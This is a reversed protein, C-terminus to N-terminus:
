DAQPAVFVQGPYILGPDRIQDQNAAYIATYRVGQGYVKRSIRWLSDGRAVTATRIQPVTVSAEPRGPAAAAVQPGAASAAPTPAASAAAAAPAQAASTAAAPAEAALAKTALAKAAPAISGTAAAEAPRDPAGVSAASEAAAIAPAAVAPATATKPPTAAVRAVAPAPADSTRGGPWAFAVEARSVVKGGEGTQDARVQYAGPTMGKEVRVSWRGDAAPPAEALFAGNLYLRVPAGPAGLGSAFFSGGEEAEVSRVVVQPQLGAAPHPPATPTPRPAQAISEPKSPPKPPPKAPAPAVIPAPASAAADSLIRTPQGPRTLAVVVEGRGSPALVSVSQRSAVPDGGEPRTELGLLHEGPALAPPLLVFQGAADTQTEALTRGRSVLAVRANPAARGAVLTAGDPEVRVIDFEPAGAIEVAASAVAAQAAVPAGAAPAVVLPRTEEPPAVVIAPLPSRGSVALMGAMAGVVGITLALAALLKARM